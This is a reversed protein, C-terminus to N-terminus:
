NPADSALARLLALQEATPPPALEGRYDADGVLLAAFAEAFDGAGSSFDAAGSKPWWQAGAANRAELWRTREESTNMTLDVAHGLEHALIRALENPTAGPRVFVEIRKEFSWTYGAVSGEGSVFELTWGPLGDQWAFTIQDLAATGLGEIRPTQFVAVAPAPAPAALPLWIAYAGVATAGACLLAQATRLAAYIM